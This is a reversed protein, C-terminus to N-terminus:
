NEKSEETVETEKKNLNNFKKVAICLSVYATATLLAARAIKFGLLVKQVGDMPKSITVIIKGTDNM